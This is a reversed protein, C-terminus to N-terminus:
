FVGLYKFVKFNGMYGYAVLPAAHEITTTGPHQTWHQDPGPAQTHSESVWGAYQPNTKWVLQLEQIAKHQSHRHCPWPQPHPATVCVFVTVVRLAASVGRHSLNVHDRSLQEHCSTTLPPKVTCRLAVMSKYSKFFDESPALKLEDM